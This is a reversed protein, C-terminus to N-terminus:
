LIEFCVNKSRHKAWDLVPVAQEEFLALGTSSDTSWIRIHASAFSLPILFRVLRLALALSPRMSRNTFEIRIGYKEEVLAELPDQLFARNNNPLYKVSVMKSMPLM